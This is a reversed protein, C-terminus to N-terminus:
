SLMSSSTFSFTYVRSRKLRSQPYTGRVPFAAAHGTVNRYREPMQGIPKRGAHVPMQRISQEPFAADQRYLVSPYGSLFGTQGPRCAPRWTSFASAGRHFASSSAMGSNLRKRRMSLLTRFATQLCSCAGCTWDAANRMVNGQETPVSNGGCPVKLFRFLMRNETAPHQEEKASCSSRRWYQVAHM